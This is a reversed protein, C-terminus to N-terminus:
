HILAQIDTLAAHASVHLQAMGGSYAWFDKCLQANKIALPWQGGGDHLLVPIKAQGISDVLEEAVLLETGQAASPSVLSLSPEKAALFCLAQITVM